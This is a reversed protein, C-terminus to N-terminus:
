IPSDSCAGTASVDVLSAHVGSGRLVTGDFCDIDLFQYVFGARAQWVENGDVIPTGTSDTYWHTADCDWGNHVGSTFSGCAESGYVKSSGPTHYGLTSTTGAGVKAYFSWYAAGSPQLTNRNISQPQTTWITNSQWLATGAGFDTAPTSVVSVPTREGLVGELEPPNRAGNFFIFWDDTEKKAALAGQEFPADARFLATQHVGSFTNDGNANESEFDCDGGTATADEDFNGSGAHVGMFTQNLGDAVSGDPNGAAPAPNAVWAYNGDEDTLDENGDLSGPQGEDPLPLSTPLSGGTPDKVEVLRGSCDWTTFAYERSGGDEDSDLQLVGTEETQPNGFLSRPLQQNLPSDSQQPNEPDDFGIGLGATGDVTNVTNAVRRSTFCDAFRLLWGSGSTTGHPLPSIPCTGAQQAGPLGIDGWVLADQDEIVAVQPDQPTETPNYGVPVYEYVWQGDNHISGAAPPCISTDLLLASPYVVVASESFGVYGDNNCDTWPGLIAEFNQAGAMQYRSGAVGTNISTGAGFETQYTNFYLKKAGQDVNADIQMLGSQVDYITDPEYTGYAMWTAAGVPAALVLAAIVAM